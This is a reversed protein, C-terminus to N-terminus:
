LPANANPGVNVFKKRDPFTNRMWAPDLELISLVEMPLDHIATPGANPMEALLGALHVVAGLRSFGDEAMPDSARQLAQVMQPPFNWRSAMAATIQAETFGMLSQERQWQVGPISPLGEIQTLVEADAQAILLQGMHLMMGTLWAIHGNIGVRLALWQAYGASDMSSNWFAIRDLAPFENFSGSLSAGVALTRVRDLGVLAVADELLGVSRSLGFQSSNALQLLRAAIAPDRAVLACVEDISANAADLMTILAQTVHSISPLRVSTFFSEIDPM